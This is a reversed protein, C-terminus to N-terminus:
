CPDRTEHLKVLIEHTIDLSNNADGKGSIEGGKLFIKHKVTVQM